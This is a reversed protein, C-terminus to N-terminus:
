TINLPYYYCDIFHDICFLQILEDDNAKVFISCYKIAHRTPGIFQMPYQVM